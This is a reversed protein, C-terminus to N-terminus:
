KEKEEQWEAAEVALSLRHQHKNEQFHSIKWVLVATFMKQIIGLFECIFFIIIIFNYLANFTDVSRVIIPLSVRKIISEAIWVAWWLKVFSHSSSEGSPTESVSDTVHM